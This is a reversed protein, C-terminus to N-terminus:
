QMAKQEAQQCEVIREALWHPSGFREAEAAEIDQLWRVLRENAMAQRQALMANTAILDALCRLLRVTASAPAVAIIAELAADAAADADTLM